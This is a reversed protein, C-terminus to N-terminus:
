RATMAEDSFKWIRTIGLIKPNLEKLLDLPLPAFPASMRVIQRAAEDLATSGSSRVITIGHISGDANITVNMTLSGSFNKKAAVQPYNLNGIREVKTEWDKLYQAAVYKHASVESIFTIRSDESSQQSQRIEAGLQAIQQQVRDPSLHPHPQDGATLAPKHAPIIKQRAQHRTLIKQTAAAESHQQQAPKGAQRNAPSGSGPLKLQQPEPKQDHRGAGLQNDPALFRADKPAQQAPTNVLTVEISRSFHEPKPPTFNVGLVIVVHLIAAIFLAVLLSDNNSLEYAPNFNAQSGM